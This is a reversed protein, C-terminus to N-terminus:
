NINERLTARGEQDKVSKGAQRQGNSLGKNPTGVNKAKRGKILPVKIELVTPIQSNDPEFSKGGTLFKFNFLATLFVTFHYKTKDASWLRLEWGGNQHRTGLRLTGTYWEAKSKMPNCATYASTQIKHEDYAGGTKYDLPNLYIRRAVKNVTLKDDIYLKMGVPLEISGIFDATGAYKYKKNWLATEYRAVMPKCLKAWEIWSVICDWENASLLATDGRDNTFAQDIKISQGATLYRIASHVNAGQEQASTVRNEIEEPTMRKFWEILGAGKPFGITNIHNVAPLYENLEDHFYHTWNGSRDVVRFLHPDDTPLNRTAAM